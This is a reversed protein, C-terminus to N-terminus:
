RPGAHVRNLRRVFRLRIRQPERLEGVAVDGDALAARQGAADDSDILREDGADVRLAHDLDILMIQRLLGHIQALGAVHLGRRFMNHRSAHNHLSVMAACLHRAHTRALALRADLLARQLGLGRWDPHVM